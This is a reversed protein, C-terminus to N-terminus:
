AGIFMVNCGPVSTPPFYCSMACGYDEGASGIAGTAGASAQLKYQVQTEMYGSGLAGIGGTNQEGNTPTTWGAVDAVSTGGTKDWSHGAIVLLCNDETTTMQPYSAAGSAEASSGSEPDGADQIALMVYHLSCNLGGSLQITPAAGSYDAWFWAAGLNPSGGYTQGTALATFGAVTITGLTSGSGEGAAVALLLKDGTTAGTPLSTALSSVGTAEGTSAARVSPNAM